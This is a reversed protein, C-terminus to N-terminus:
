ETKNNDEERDFWKRNRSIPDSYPSNHYYTSLPRQSFELSLGFKDSPKYEFGAGSIFMQDKLTTNGFENGFPHHSVGIQVHATLQTSIKYMMTNLYLGSNYGQGGISGFSMSYSQSMTFRDPNLGLLSVISTVKNSKLAEGVKVQNKFQASALVPLGVLLLVPLLTLKRM